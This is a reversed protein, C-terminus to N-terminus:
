QQRWWSFACGPNTCAGAHDLVRAPECVPCFDANIREIMMHLKAIFATKRTCPLVHRPRVHEVVRLGNM